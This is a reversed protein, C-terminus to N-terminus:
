QLFNRSVVEVLKSHGSDLEILQHHPVLEMLPKVEKKNIIKDHIGLYFSLQSYPEQVAKAVKELDPMFHRLAVWSHYVQSRKFETDMQNEAFKLTYNDQLRFTRSLSVMGRFLTPKKIQAKLIGRFPFFVHSYRYSFHTTIGDPALLRLHSIRDPFLQATIMAYKGGMSYGMVEFSELNEEALFQQLVKHWDAPQLAYDGAHWKSEGHFPLDFSYLTHTEKLVESVPMFVSHDQGFGHFCLLPTAGGPWITYKLSVEKTHLFSHRNASM